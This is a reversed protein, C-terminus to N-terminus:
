KKESRNEQMAKKRCQETYHDQIKQLSSIKDSEPGFLCYGRKDVAVIQYTDRLVAPFSVSPIKRIDMFNQLRVSFNKFLLEKIEEVWRKLYRIDEMDWTKIKEELVSIRDITEQSSEIHQDVAESLAMEAMERSPDYEDDRVSRVSTIQYLM